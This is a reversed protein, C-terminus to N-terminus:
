EAHLSERQLSNGIAPATSFILRLRKLRSLVQAKAPKARGQSCDNFHLLTPGRLDARPTLLSTNVPLHNVQSTWPSSRTSPPAVFTPRTIFTDHGEFAEPALREIADVALEFGLVSEHFPVIILWLLCLSSCLFCLLM